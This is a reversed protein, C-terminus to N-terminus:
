KVYKSWTKFIDSLCHENESNDALGLGIIYMVWIPNLFKKGVDIVMHGQNNDKKRTSFYQEWKLQPYTHIFVEGLYIGTDVLLSRTKVTLDWDNLAIYDPIEARKKKYEAEPIKETETNQKLWAGLEKLSNSTFDPIWNEFGQTSNVAQSLESIRKEKNEWFWKEYLKLEKKSKTSFEYDIPLNDIIKYAM